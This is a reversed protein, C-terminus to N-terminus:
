PSIKERQKKIFYKCINIVLKITGCITVLTGVIMWSWCPHYDALHKKVIISAPPFPADPINTLLQLFCGIFATLIGFVIWILSYPCIYILPLFGILLVFDPVWIYSSSPPIYFSLVMSLVWLFCALWGAIKAKPSKEKAAM